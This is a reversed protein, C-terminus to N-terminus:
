KIFDSASWYRSNYIIEQPYDNTKQGIRRCIRDQATSNDSGSYSNLGSGILDIVLDLAALNLCENM